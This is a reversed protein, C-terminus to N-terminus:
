SGPRVTGTLLMAVPVNLISSTVTAVQQGIDPQSASIAAIEAVVASLVAAGNLMEPAPDSLTPLLTVWPALVIIPGFERLWGARCNALDKYYKAEYTLKQADLTALALGSTVDKSAYLESVDAEITLLIHGPHTQNSIVISGSNLRPRRKVSM